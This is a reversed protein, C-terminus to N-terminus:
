LAELLLELLLLKAIAGDLVKEEFDLVQEVSKYPLPCYYFHPWHADALVVCHM